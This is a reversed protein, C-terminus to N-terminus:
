VYYMHVLTSLNCADSIFFFCFLPLSFFSLYTCIRKPLSCRTDRRSQEGPARAKNAILCGYQRVYCCCCCGRCGSMLTLPNRCRPPLLCTSETIAREYGGGGCRWLWVRVWLTRRAMWWVVECECPKTCCQDPCGRSPSAQGSARSLTRRTSSGGIPFARRASRTAGEVM